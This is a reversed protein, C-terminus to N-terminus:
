KEYWGSLDFPEPGIARKCDAIAEDFPVYDFATCHSNPNTNYVNMGAVELVPKIEHMWKNAQQYSNNNSRAAGEHRNQSFAYGLETTMAFDCGLLYCRRLGLYYCLRVGLFMSFLLKPGGTAEVGKNNNGWTASNATLFQSPVWECHRKYGYVNPCDRTEMIRDGMKPTTWGGNALKVRFQKKMKPIPVLKIMKPDLWIGHHFKTPPDSCTFASVPVFGCVNNVGLSVIGREALRMYDVQKLSPGGCVLFGSGHKWADRLNAPEYLHNCVYLPDGQEVVNEVAQANYPPETPVRRNYISQVRRDPHDPVPAAQRRRRRSM